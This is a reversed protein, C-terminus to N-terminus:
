GVVLTRLRNIAASLEHRRFFAKEGRAFPTLVDLGKSGVDEAVRDVVDRLTNKGDMYRTSYYVGDAISKTQGADVIQELASLDILHTGFLVTRLSKVSINVDRKGRSPDFSERLPIRGKISGFNDESEKKRETKYREAIKKAKATVDLPLYDEMCIVGDAVDFYDGSGGMVLVTSVGFKRYLGAVRDIFPTIPEKEKIVLEQMRHDRIMFNTASTDEDLLLVDAGAEIAEIINAAQSTSGSANGTSFRETKGGMPLGRIFPSIDVKEVRRGDEARVKFADASAIVLERGDGPVHNYVGLEVARLLTSKGHFGGGVILTIGEGIGMGTIRGRNPLEMSVKMTGPSLFPVVNGGTLPTDDVGSKRPLISGDAVFAALGAKKLCARLYDADEMCEIHRALAAMDTNEFLMSDNVISPIKKFFIESAHRSDIKRGYAPLGVTFRAEVREGKLLVSTRELIEQGAPAISILGSKGTGKRGLSFQASSRRLERALFDRFAIERSRTSYAHSPFGAAKKDLRVSVVSPPAFPDPQVHEISLSYTKFNYDGKLEMYAKYGKGDLRNIKSRLIDMKEQENGRTFSLALRGPLM